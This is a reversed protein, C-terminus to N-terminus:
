RVNLRIELSQLVQATRAENENSNKLEGAVEQIAVNISGLVKTQEVLHTGIIENQSQQNIFIVYLAGGLLVALAGMKLLETLLGKNNLTKM